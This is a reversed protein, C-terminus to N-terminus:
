LTFLSLLMLRTYTENKLMKNSHANFPPVSLLKMYKTNQKNGKVNQRTKQKCTDFLSFLMHMHSCKWRCLCNFIHTSLFLLGKFLVVEMMESSYNGYFKRCLRHHVIWVIWEKGGIKQKKNKRHSSVLASLVNFLFIMRNKHKSFSMLYQLSWKYKLYDNKLTNFLIKNVSHLLVKFSNSVQSRDWRWREIFVSFLAFHFVFPKPLLIEGGYVTFSLHFNHKFIFDIEIKNKGEREHLTIMISMNMRCSM